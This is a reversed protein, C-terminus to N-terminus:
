LFFFFGEQPTGGQDCEGGLLEGRWRECVGAEVLGEFFVEVGPHGFECFVVFSGGFVGHWREWLLCPM